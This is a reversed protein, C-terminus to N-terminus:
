AYVGYEMRGLLTKVLETGATSQLLDIPRHGELSLEPSTLWREANALNGLVITAQTTATALRMARDSANPDLPRSSAEARQFTRESIGMVDLVQRLSIVNYHQVLQNIRGTTVGDIVFAHAALGTPDDVFPADTRRAAATKARGTPLHVVLGDRTGKPQTAAAPARKSAVRPKGAPASASATRGAKHQEVTM